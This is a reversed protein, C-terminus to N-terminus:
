KPRPGATPDPTPKAIVPLPAELQKIKLELERIKEGNQSKIDVILSEYKNTVYDGYYFKMFTGTTGGPALAILLTYVLLHNELKQKWTRNESSQDMPEEKTKPLISEVYAILRTGSDIIETQHNAWLKGTSSGIVKGEQFILHM